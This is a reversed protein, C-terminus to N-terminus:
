SFLGGDDYCDGDVHCDNLSGMSNDVSDDDSQDDFDTEDMDCWGGIPTDDPDHDDDYFM